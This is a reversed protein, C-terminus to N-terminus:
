RSQSFQRFLKLIPSQYHAFADQIPAVNFQHDKAEVPGVWYRSSDGWPENIVWPHGNYQFILRDDSRFQRKIASVGEVSLLIKRIAGMSIFTNGIEFAHLSGDSRKIPYTIM